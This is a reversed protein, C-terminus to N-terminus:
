CHHDRALPITPLKNEKEGKRATTFKRQHSYKVRAIVFLRLTGKNKM